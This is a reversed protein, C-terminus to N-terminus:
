KNYVFTYYTYFVTVTLARVLNFNGNGEITTPLLNKIALTYKINHHSLNLRLHYGQFNFRLCWEDHMHPLTVIVSHQMLVM